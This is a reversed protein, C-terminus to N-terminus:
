KDWAAAGASVCCAIVGLIYLFSGLWLFCYGCIAGMIVDLVVVGCRTFKNMKYVENKM